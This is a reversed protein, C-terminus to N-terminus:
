SGSGEPDPRLNRKLFDLYTRWLHLQKADGSLLHAEAPYLMLEFPTSQAQLGAAIRTANDLTVNDDTMGHVLLLSGRLNNLRSAVDAAAYGEANSDPTEMFREAYHTDYLRWDTPAAGAIGAKFPSHQATMLMLTLYGGYSWGMVALKEADVYPLTSLFRTGALQDAVELSGLHRHIASKFASSRNASGRNDLRFVIYGAELLLQDSLTGWHKRVMQVVPGGYVSVVVPYRRSPDFGPPKWLAYHLDVGDDSRLVGFEPISLRHAYKSLPHEADLTNPEIWVLRSGDRGYIATRPPTAPDSYTGAFVGGRQAVSVTWWGEGSTLKVPEAAAAYSVAYLHRELVSDKSATFLVRKRELDVGEVAGIPWMGNTLQRILSGDARYLYLHRFGSRESSWIFTGDPLPRFDDSLEVWHLSTESLVIKTRGTAVDVALLDLRKQDRSQRQVYLTKGDVSWNVRALYIDRNEGLDVRTRRHQQMDYVYLEVTANAGGPRPYRQEILKVDRVGFEVRPVMEVSSEDVRAVAVRREDPSWWYGTHRRMEEQAVFEAVGWSVAGAGDESLAREEGSSLHLAYLNQERVYSVYTGRPSVRADIEDGASHTLRRVRGDDRAILYLDGDLPALVYRGQDDWRYEVVGRNLLRLRERRARLADSMEKPEGSLAQADILKFSKRRGVDYAWLDLVQADDAKPKLYTALRGDPSLQVNRARPGNLDPSSFVREPTLGDAHASAAIYLLLWLLPLPSRLRIM